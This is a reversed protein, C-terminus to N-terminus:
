TKNEQLFHEMQEENIRRSLERAQGAYYRAAGGIRAEWAKM